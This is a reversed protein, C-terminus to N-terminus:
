SVKNFKRKAKNKSSSSRNSKCKMSCLPFSLSKHRINFINNFPAIEKKLLLWSYCTVTYIKLQPRRYKNLLSGYFIENTM